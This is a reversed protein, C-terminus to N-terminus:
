KKIQNEGTKYDIQIGKQANYVYVCFSVDETGISKAEMLVGSALLNDEEFVPTVRYLVLAEPHNDLYNLVVKEYNLMELNMARTGTILNRKEANLSSLSWALLHSRNYLYAPAEEIVEPYKNQVWGSPKVNGIEGRVEGDKPMTDVGAAMMAVGCRNLSDLESLKMYSENVNLEDETFYPINDHVVVSQITEDWKPIENMYAAYNSSTLDTDVANSTYDDGNDWLKEFRSALWGSKTENTLDLDTGRGHYVAGLINWIILVLVALVIYKKKSKYMREAKSKGQNYYKNNNKM